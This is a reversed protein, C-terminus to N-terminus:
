PLRKFDKCTRLIPNIVSYNKDFGSYFEDLYRIMQKKSKENLYPFENIIQYFDDKHDSFEQLANRYEEDSRCIGLYYRDQVTKIPLGKAPVSYSAGVLGSYDFDYPVISLLSSGSFENSVFAKCNHLRNVAWDTNGIMFNFICVRDMIEPLVNLQTLSEDEIEISNTRIELLDVPEILFAYSNITKRRKKSDIYHVNLLRVKFSLDTLANYLKYILYEKLVNDQIGLSCHTVLKIKKLNFSDATGFESDKVNIMIPPFPCRGHRFEGRSRLRIEKNISDTDSIYYTLLAEMYEDKPRKRVYERLDFRLSISLLDDTTFLGFDEQL